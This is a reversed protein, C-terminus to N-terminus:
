QYLGKLLLLLTERLKDTKKKRSLNEQGKTIYSREAYSKVFSTEPRDTETWSMRDYPLMIFPRNEPIAENKLFVINRFSELSKLQSYIHWVSVARLESPNTVPM